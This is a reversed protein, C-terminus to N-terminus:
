KPEKARPSGVRLYYQFATCNRPVYLTVTQLQYCARNKPSGSYATFDPRIASLAIGFICPQVNFAMYLIFTMLPNSTAM